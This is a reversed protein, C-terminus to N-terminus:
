SLSWSRSQAPPKARGRSWLGMVRQSNAAGPGFGDTCNASKRSSQPQSTSRAVPSAFAKATSLNSSGVVAVFLSMSASRLSSNPASKGGCCSLRACPSAHTPTSSKRVPLATARCKTQCRGSYSSAPSSSSGTSSSASTPSAISSSTSAQSSSSARKTSAGASSGSTESSRAACRSIRFLLTSRTAQFVSSSRTPGRSRRACRRAAPLSHRACTSRVRDDAPTM